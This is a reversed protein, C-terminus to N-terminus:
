KLLKKVEDELDNIQVTRSAVKGDKDILFLHPLGPLGYQVALPSNIGGAQYLHVAGIANDRLFAAADEQKDDLNVCVLEVGKGGQNSVLLKLKAMDGSLQKCYSAWYYVVVVKGKLRTIDFAEGGLTTGSLEMAKGELELRRIAGGAKAALSNGDFRALQQYWKKAEPEADKGKFESGMALQYLADPTDEASPYNQVFKKLKGLWQEQVKGFQSGGEALRPAYEAWMERFAVYAALTTGPTEQAIQARLRGLHELSSKDNASSNQAAAGLADALQRLWQEREETKVKALIREILEVREKNYRCLDANPGPTASPQPARADLDSLEKLLKQMEPDVSTRAKAEDASGDGPSPGDVLRWARGVLVMEGTQLWDYQKDGYDYRITRSPYKFLDHAAGLSDAPVCHPPVAELGGWQAKEPLKAATAQFRAAAKGAQDRLREAEAASLKLAAIEDEKILLAKFRELNGTALAQFIEQCVEEASIMEWSDIKGDKNTDVGWKTGAGNLWRFQNPKARNSTYIERYVEAGDKYYSWIKYDGGTDFFRRLPQGARDRLVWGSGRGSAPIVEVKCGKQEDPAPTTCVVGEQRPKINLMQAPSPAPAAVVSAGGLLLLCGALGMGTRAKAM